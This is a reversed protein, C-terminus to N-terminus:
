EYEEELTVESLKILDLLGETEDVPDANANPTNTYQMVEENIRNTVASYFMAASKYLIQAAVVEEANASNANALAVFFKDVESKFIHHMVKYGPMVVIQLLQARDGHDLQLDPNYTQNM